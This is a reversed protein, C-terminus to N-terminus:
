AACGLRSSTRRTCGIASRRTRCSATCTSYGTRGIRRARRPIRRTARRSSDRRDDAGDCLEWSGSVTGDFYGNMIAGHMARAGAPLIAVHRKTYARLAKAMADFDDTIMKYGVIQPVSDVIKMGAALPM